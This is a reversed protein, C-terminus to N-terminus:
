FELSIGASPLFGPWKETTATIVGEDEDIDFDFGAANRRNYLNQIDFFLDLSVAGVEWRRSARVDLRHYTSLRESNLRGLVPVFEVDGEDDVTEVLTLPTTPWGTHYRWAANIRWYRGARVDLDLNVTHTQDFLRPIRRGAIEDETSAYAYNIWWAARSGLSGRLFVEVGEAISREPAIRVRDPEVEPFVNLPEYLNEYRPRPNGVERRYLEVRLALEKFRSGADFLQEVGLVRHESREVPHLATEGDEVQLEYPRQSQLFRGWAIRLVGRDTFAYALNLRPSFHSERTQSYRDYRLGLELTLPELLQIRDALHVGMDRTEFGGAFVTADRGFDHRIRALPHDLEHTGFYDFETEMERLQWGGELLHKPAPQFQCVQRLELVDSDREDLVTFRADEELELGRRDRDIGTQSVASELILDEGLVAQHTLWAYASDYDTEYRKREDNVTQEFGLEDASRLVNARLSHRPNLQYELKGFADWYQPDEDGLMRGLLDSSGRRAEAMWRGREGHFTGDGGAHAGLIGIGLRARPPGGPTVSTMDLVGSMRDGYRTSFGGTSLDAGGLNRSDVFSLASDFDQLHFPEFLEQGDLLIQTEDRRGGRVHFRASVDNGATGPLLTVARFLDDGLHPLTLIEERSLALPGSPEERLLSLRSPTVVIEERLVLMPDPVPPVAVTGAAPGAPRPVVVVVGNPGDQVTLGHPALIEELVQRPTTAAPESEVRMDPRVVNSTFLLKLGQARLDLLAEELPRGAYRPEPAAALPAAGLCSLILLLRLFKM